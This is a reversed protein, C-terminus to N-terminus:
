RVQAPALTLRISRDTSASHKPAVMRNESPSTGVTTPRTAEVGSSAWARATGGTPAPRVPTKRSATRSARVRMVSLGTSAPTM